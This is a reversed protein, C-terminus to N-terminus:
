DECMDSWWKKWSVFGQEPWFGWLRQRKFRIFISWAKLDGILEVRHRYLCHRYVVSWFPYVRFTGKQNHEIYGNWIPIVIFCWPHDHLARDEDSREFKHIFIAFPETRFLYWRILYPDKDCNLIIRKRFLKTLIAEIM